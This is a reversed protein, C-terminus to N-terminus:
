ALKLFITIGGVQTHSLMLRGPSRSRKVELYTLPNGTYHAELLKSSELGRRERTLNLCTISMPLCVCGM